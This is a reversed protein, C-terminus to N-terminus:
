TKNNLYKILPLYIESSLDIFNQNDLFFCSHINEGFCFEMEPKNREGEKFGDLGEWSKIFANEANKSSFKAEVFNFSSEPPIPLCENIANKYINIYKYLLNKSELSSPSFIEKVKYKNNLRYIIKTGKISNNLSSAYLLRIWSETIKYITLNSNVLEIIQDDSVYYENKNSADKLCIKNIEKFDRIQELLSDVINKLENEKLYLSNGPAFIGNHILYEKLNLNALKEELKIHDFNINRIINNMLKTKQYGNINEESPNSLFRKGFNLNNRRLWFLQPEKFCSILESLKYNNSNYNQPKWVIKKILAYKNNAKFYKSTKYNLLKKDEFYSVVNNIYKEDIINELYYILQRIPSSVELKNNSKDYNSWTIFFKERCSMLLEFFLYKEKDLKILDGFIFFKNILNIKEEKFKSPFYKNNVDIMFIVKHPILRINNLSSILIQNNRNVLINNPKNFCRLLIDKVVYIDILQKCDSKKLQEDLVLNIENIQDSYYDNNIKLNFLIIKIKNFWESLSFHGRLSNIDRKLSNLINICKHLDLYNNNSIFSSINSKDFFLNDEYIMGLTIRQICWDLSNKFEGSRENSDLGWDFGSEELLKIIEEIDKPSFNFFNKLCVNNLFLSLKETTIKSVAIELYDIILSFVNSTDYFDKNAILYPIRQGIIFEDDFISKIHPIVNDLNSSAIAIDSYKFEKNIHIIDIIQDRIFELENVIDYHSSLSLSQDDPFSVIKNQNNNIVKKQLQHLLSIRGSKNQIEPNSYFPEYNIDVQLNNVTEEILKEFNSGFRGFIKEINDIKFKEYENRFLIGEDINLRNWLDDGYSLQYFNVRTFQSIKLYFSIQLKTLNNIAIIYIQKPIKKKIDIEKHNYNKLFDILLYPLSKFGIKKEIIKFLLPQWFYNKELGKFLSNQSLSSKHWNNIMEPRFLMYESFTNAIKNCLIYIDRDIIKNNQKYKNLWNRLPWSEEYTIIEGLSNVINWLLLEYDWSINNLSPYLKKILDETFTSSKKFEYLASIQNKITIQDRMWKSLLYDDLCIDIQETISPPNLLLEKALVETILEIKNSKILNFM